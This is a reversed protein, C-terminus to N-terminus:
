FRGEEANAILPRVKLLYWCSIAIGPLLSLIGICVVAIWMAQNREALAWAWAPRHAADLLAWVSLALPISLVLVTVCAWLLDGM